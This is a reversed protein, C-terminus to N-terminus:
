DELKIGEIEARIELSNLYLGMAMKQKKLLDIPCTPTFELTGADYKVTMRHLKEYRLKTQLYEAKFRDKYDASCMMEVTDRLEMASMNPM